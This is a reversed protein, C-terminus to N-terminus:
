EWDYAPFPTRRIGTLNSAGANNLLPLSLVISVSDIVEKIIYDDGNIRIDMGPYLNATSGVTIETEGISGTATTLLVYAGTVTPPTSDNCGSYSAPLTYNDWDSYYNYPTGFADDLAVDMGTPDTLDIENLTYDTDWDRIHLNIRGIVQSFENLCEFGYVPQAGQFPDLIANVNSSVSATLSHLIVGDAYYETSGDSCSNNSHYNAIYRNSRAGLKAPSSLTAEYDLSTYSETVISALGNNVETGLADRVPGNLCAYANGGCEQTEVVVSNTCASNTGADADADTFTFEILGYRFSGTDCNIDDYKGSCLDSLEGDFYVGNIYLGNQSYSKIAIGTAGGLGDTTNDDTAGSCDTSAGTVQHIIYNAGASYDINSSTTRVPRRKFFSFPKYRVSHCIGPGVNANLKIDRFYINNEGIEAFCDIDVIDEIDSVSGRPNSVIDRKKIRCKNFINDEGDKHVYYKPTNEIKVDVEFYDEILMNFSSSSTGLINTATITYSKSAAAVTPAGTIDGTSQDISLGPPLDPTITYTIEEGEPLTAKIISDIGRQLEFTPTTEFDSITAANASYPRVSSFAEGPLTMTIPTGNTSQLMGTNTAGDINSILWNSRGTNTLIDMGSILSAVNSFEGIIVPSWLENLTYAAATDCDELASISGIFNESSNTDNINRTQNIFLYNALGAETPNGTVIAKAFKDSPASPFRMCLAPRQAIYLDTYAATNNIQIVHTLAIPDTQIVAEEDLFEIYNDLSADKVFEGNIVQVILYKENGDIDLIKKIIGTAGDSLPVLASAAIEQGVTFNSVSQVLNKVKFAVLQSYSLDDPPNIIGIDFKFSRTSIDNKVTVTYEIPSQYSHDTAGSTDIIYGFLPSDVNKVLRLTSPLDPTISIDTSNNYSIHEATTISTDNILRLNINSEPQFFYKIKEISAESNSFPFANDILEGPYLSGSSLTGYISNNNDKYTIVGTAGRETTFTENTLGNNLFGSNDDLQFGIYVPGTFPFAITNTNTGDYNYYCTGASLYVDGITPTAPPATGIGTGTCNFSQETEFTIREPIPAQITVRPQSTTTLTQATADSPSYFNFNIAALTFSRVPSVASNSIKIVGTQNNTTFHAAYTTTIDSGFNFGPNSIPDLFNNKSASSLSFSNEEGGKILYDGFEGSPAIHSVINKGVTANALNSDGTIFIYPNANDYFVSTPDTIIDGDIENGNEDIFDSPPNVVEGVSSSADDSSAGDEKFKTLSDPVCSTAILLLILILHLSPKGKLTKM